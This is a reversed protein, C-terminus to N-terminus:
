CLRAHGVGDEFRLDRTETDVIGVPFGPRKVAHVANVQNRTSSGSADGEFGFQAEVPQADSFYPLAKM